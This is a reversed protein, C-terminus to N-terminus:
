RKSNRYRRQYALKDDYTNFVKLSKVSNRLFWDPDDNKEVNEPIPSHKQFHSTDLGLRKISRRIRQRLSETNTLGLTSIVDFISKSSPVVRILDFDSFKQRNIATLIHINNLFNFIKELM